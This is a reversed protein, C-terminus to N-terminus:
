KTVAPPADGTPTSGPRGPTPLGPPVNQLEILGNRGSLFTRPRGGIDADFIWWGQGVARFNRAGEPWHVVGATQEPCRCDGGPEPPRWEGGGREGWNFYAATAAISVIAVLLVTRVDNM